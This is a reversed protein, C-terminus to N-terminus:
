DLQARNSSGGGRTRGGGWAGFAGRCGSRCASWCSPWGAYRSAVGLNKFRMWEPLGEVGRPLRRLDTADVLLRTWEELQMGCRQARRAYRRCSRM